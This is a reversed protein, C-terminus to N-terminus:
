DPLIAKAVVVQRRVEESERGRPLPAKQMRELGRTNSARKFPTLTKLPVRPVPVGFRLFGKNLKTAV